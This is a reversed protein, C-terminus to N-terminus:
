GRDDDGNKTPRALLEKLEAAFARTFLQAGQQNMHGDDFSYQTDYFEPYKRPDSMDIKNSDPLREFVPHVIDVDRRGMRPSLVFILICNTEKARVIFSNCTALLTSPGESIRLSYKDVNVKSRQQQNKPLIGSGMKLSPNIEVERDLSLFGAESAEVDRSAIAQDKSSYQFFEIRMLGFGMYKYLMAAAYSTIYKVKESFSASTELETMIANVSSRPSLSRLVAASRINGALSHPTNLEVILISPSADSLVRKLFAHERPPWQGPVGLNFVSYKNSLESQLLMSDFHRYVRSSGVLLLDCKEAIAFDLKADSLATDRPTNFGGHCLIASMSFAFGM